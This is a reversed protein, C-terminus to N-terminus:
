GVLAYTSKHIAYIKLRFFEQDRFGYAQRQMTRIKNNTGELAATSINYDYWALLGKRHLRLTQAFKNLMRIGSAEARAIWDDLFRNANRKGAQEWFQRLDEKMYYATALPQNIRLADELRRREHRTEDLNEPNKMLLWLTGKLLQKHEIKEVSGQVDRRLNALKDNFLKVVHFRDFVHVAQPLHEAVAFTYAPSMDTAVAKIKAGAGCLKKWFPDLSDAGKGEGIFVVAGSALDLVVTLYRHGKGISIEDIAIRELHKLKPRRFRRQLYRKQINKVVDWSVGLHNATDRITMHRSLELAYREFARTYTRREHVFAIKVQRTHGCDHCHVRAIPLTISVPKGGIPPAKFRRTVQGQRMLRRSGCHSCALTNPDQEIVVEIIGNTFHTRRYRYGRVGWAHYLLSTSMNQEGKQLQAVGSSVLM